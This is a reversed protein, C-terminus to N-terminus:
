RRASPNAHTTEKRPFPSVIKIIAGSHRLTRVLRDLTTFNMQAHCRGTSNNIWSTWLQQKGDQDPNTQATITIVTRAGKTFPAYRRKCIPCFLSGDQVVLRAPVSHLSCERPHTMM